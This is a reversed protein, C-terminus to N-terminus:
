RADQLVRNFARARHSRIGRDALARCDGELNKHVPHFAFSSHPIIFSSYLGLAKEKNMMGCENSMMEEPM